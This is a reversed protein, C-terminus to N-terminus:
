PGDPAVSLSARMAPYRTAVFGASEYMTVGDGTAVLEAWCAGTSRAWDLVATFALQGYGQRRDEPFTCVNSMHIAEGGPCGPSPVGVRVEAMATAVVQSGVQVVVVCVQADDLRARFWDQASRRWESHDVGPTRMARLMESRLEVLTPVDAIVARRVCGVTSECKAMGVM